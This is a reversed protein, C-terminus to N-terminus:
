KGNKIREENLKLCEELVEKADSGSCGCVYYLMNEIREINTKKDM